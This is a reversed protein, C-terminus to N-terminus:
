QIPEIQGTQPNYRKTPQGSVAGREPLPIRKPGRGEGHITDLMENRLRVLNYRLEQEGQSQELDGAISQLFAIERESVQGLAGGTPSADRMDQLQQFGINAQITKLNSAIRRADTGPIGSFVVGFGTDPVTGKGPGTGMAGLARDIEDPM